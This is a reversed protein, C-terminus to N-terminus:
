DFTTEFLRVCIMKALLFSNPACDRGKAVTFVSQFVFRKFEVKELRFFEDVAFHAFSAFFCVSYSFEDSKQATSNSTGKAFKANKATFLNEPGRRIRFKGQEALEAIHRLEATLREAEKQTLVGIRALMRAHAVSARCDYPVLRQDLVYDEGVTFAEIQEDLPVDKKQWLKM